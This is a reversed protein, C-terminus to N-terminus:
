IPPPYRLLRKLFMVADLNGYVRARFAVYDMSSWIVERRLRYPDSEAHNFGSITTVAGRYGAERLIAAVDFAANGYVGLPYAFFEISTGSYNELRLKDERVEHRLQAVDVLESMNCHNVTHGGITFGEEAIQRIDQVRLGASRSRHSPNLLLNSRLYTAEAERSLGVFGSSIFFTAPLRLERLVPIVDSTWSRYGDDFTIVINVREHSLTGVFFDELSVVNTDRKLFRMKERFADRDEPPIDHFVLFRTVPRRQLRFAWNRIRSFGLSYFLLVTLDQRQM